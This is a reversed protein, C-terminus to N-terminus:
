FDSLVSLVGGHADAAPVLAHLTSFPKITSNKPRTKKTSGELFKETTARASRRKIKLKPLRFNVSKALYYNKLSIIVFDFKLFFDTIVCKLLTMKMVDCSKEM